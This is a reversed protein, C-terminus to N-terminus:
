RVVKQQKNDRAPFFGCNIGFEMRGTNSVQIECQFIRDRWESTRHLSRVPIHLVMTFSDASFIDTESLSGLEHRVYKNSEPPREVMVTFLRKAEAYMDEHTFHYVTDAPPPEEDAPEQDIGCPFFPAREASWEWGMMEHVTFESELSEHLPKLKGQSAETRPVWGCGIVQLSCDYIHARYWISSPLRNPSANDVIEMVFPPGLTTDLAPYKYWICSDNSSFYDLLPYPRFHMPSYCEYFESLELEFDKECLPTTPSCRRADAKELDSISVWGFGIVTLSCTFATVNLWSSDSGGIRSEDVRLIYRSTLITDLARLGSGFGSPFGYPIHAPPTPRLRIPSDATLGTGPLFRPPPLAVGAAAFLVVAFIPMALKRYPCM